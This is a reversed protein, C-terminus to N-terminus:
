HRKATLVSFFACVAFMVACAAFMLKMDDLVAVIKGFLIPAIFGGFFVSSGMILGNATGLYEQPLARRPIMYIFISVTAAAWNGFLVYAIVSLDTGSAIVMSAPSLMCIIFVAKLVTSDSHKDALSPVVFSVPIYILGMVALLIGKMETGIGVVDTLYVPGFITLIMKGATEFIGILLCLVFIRSSLLEHLDHSLFASVTSTEKKELEIERVTLSIIIGMLLLASGTFVFIGRWSFRLAVSTLVIPGIASAIVASGCSIFGSRAGLDEKVLNKNVIAILMSLTSGICCGSFFRLVLMLWFHSVIATLISFCGSAILLPALFFKCKGFRDALIGVIISSFAKTCWIASSMASYQSLSIGLDQIVVDSVFTIGSADLMVFGYTFFFLISIYNLYVSKLNNCKKNVSLKDVM